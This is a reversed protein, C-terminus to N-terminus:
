RHLFLCFPHGAPDIWVRVDEQPQYGALVAGAREALDGAADLDSVAVDLHVQMQQDTPGGPWTPAVHYKERQFSLGPRVGGAPRTVVWEESDEVREYGLLAEYFTALAQPDPAGLVIGSLSLHPATM